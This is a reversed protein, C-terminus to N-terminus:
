VATVVGARQMRLGGVRVMFFEDLNGSAISLFRARELPPNEPNEAEGLVRDNFALWSAERNVYQGGM